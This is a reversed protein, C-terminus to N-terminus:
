CCNCCNCCCNCCCCCNCASAAAATTALALLPPLLSAAAVSLQQNPSQSPCINEFNHWFLSFLFFSAGGKYPLPPLFRSLNIFKKSILNVLSCYSYRMPNQEKTVGYTTTGMALKEMIIKANEQFYRSLIKRCNKNIIYM